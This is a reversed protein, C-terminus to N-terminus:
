QILEILLARYNFHPIDIRYTGRVPKIESGDAEADMVKKVGLMHSPKWDVTLDKNNDNLMIVLARGPRRYMGAYVKKDSSPRVTYLNEGEARWYPIWKCDTNNWGFEGLMKLGQVVAKAHSLYPNMDLLMHIGMWHRAAGEAEEPDERLWPEFGFGPGLPGLASGVFGYQQGMTEAVVYGMGFMTLQRSKPDTNIEEFDWTTSTFAMPGAYTTSTNHIVIVPEKQGKEQMITYLRKWLERYKFLRGTPMWRGDEDRYGLNTVPNIQGENQIEDFYWHDIGMDMGLNFCWLDYDIRSQAASIGRGAYYPANEIEKKRIDAESPAWEWVYYRPEAHALSRARMDTYVLTNRGQQKYKATRIKLEKEAAKNIPRLHAFTYRGSAPENEKEQGFFTWYTNGVWQFRPFNQRTIGADATGIDRAWSPRPKIPTAEIAFVIHRPEENRWLVTAPKDILNLVVEIEGSRKLFRKKRYINVVPTAKNEPLTWGEASDAWWCLGREYDGLWLYSLWRAPMTWNLVETSDFVRGGTKSLEKSINSRCGDGAAHIFEANDEKLPIVIQLGEVVADKEGSIIVEYKLMGDYEGLMKIEAKVGRGAATAEARIENGSTKTFRVGEGKLPQRKGGFTEVIAIPSSLIEEGATEIQKPFGTADLTYRRNWVSVTNEKKDVEIPTWPYLVKDSIGLRNHEFPFTKKEIRDKAESVTKGRKDIVVATVTYEGEAIREPLQLIVEGARNEFDRGTVSAIEKGRGDTVRYKITDVSDTDALGGFDLVAKVRNFYPYFYAEFLVPDTPPAIKEGWVPSRPSEIKYIGEYLSRDANDKVTMFLYQTKGKEPTETEWTLIGERNVGVTLDKTEKKTEETWKTMRDRVAFEARLSMQRGTTNRVSIEPTIKGTLVDGMSRIQIVPSSSDFVMKIYRTRERFVDGMQGSFYHVGPAAKISGAYLVSWAEGEKIRGHHFASAPAAMEISWWGDAYFDKYDWEVEYPIYGGIRQSYGVNEYTGLPYMMAQVWNHDPHCPHPDVLIEFHSTPGGGALRRAPKDFIEEPHTQMRAAIYINGSDYAFWYQVSIPDLGGKRHPAIGTGMFATDWEGPSIVGDIVPPREVPPIRVLPPLSTGSVQAVASFASSFLFLVGTLLVAKKSWM